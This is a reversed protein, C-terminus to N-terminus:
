KALPVHNTAAGAELRELVDMMQRVNSSYDRLVLVGSGKVAMISNPLKAFPTILSVADEYSFYKLLLYPPKTRGEFYKELVPAADEASVTKLKAVYIVFSSSDPLQRWPGDFVLGAESSASQAPVAKVFSTGMYVMAIQHAALANDLMQLAEARTLPTANHVTIKSTMPLQPSRILTRGSLEQYFDLLQPLALDQFKIMNPPITKKADGLDFSSYTAPRIPAPPVAAAPAAVPSRSTPKACGAILTICLAPIILCHIKM